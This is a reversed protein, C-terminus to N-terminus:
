QRSGPKEACIMFTHVPLAQEWELRGQVGPGIDDIIETINMGLQQLVTCDWAPRRERSLPLAFAAQELDAVRKPPLDGAYHSTTHKSLFSARAAEKEARLQDDYLYLYWNADFYVMRGGPTLVRNWESLAQQPYELNWLVNRSVILDFTEDKFPLFEGRHHIFNVAAHYAAANTKAHQLMQQTADVATVDHGALALNIAFFGPGTGVDLIRLHEGKPAHSLILTQWASRREDNMEAINQESYSYARDAWYSTLTNLLESKEEKQQM